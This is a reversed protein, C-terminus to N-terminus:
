IKGNYEAASFLGFKWGKMTEGIKEADLYPLQSGAKIQTARGLYEFDIKM